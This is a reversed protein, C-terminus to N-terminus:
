LKQNPALPQSYMDLLNRTLISLISEQFFVKLLVHVTLEKLSAMVRRANGGCVHHGHTQVRSALSIWLLGWWFSRIEFKKKM